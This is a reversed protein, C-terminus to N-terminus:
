NNKIFPAFLEYHELKVEAPIGRKLWNAVRQYGGCKKDYGLLEVLKKVGGLENIIEKDTKM